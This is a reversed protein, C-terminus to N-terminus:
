RTNLRSRLVEMSDSPIVCIRHLTYIGDNKRAVRDGLIFGMVYGADKAAKMTNDNYKSYPYAIYNVKKGLINELIKKSEKLVLGHNKLYM